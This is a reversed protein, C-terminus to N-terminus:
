RGPAASAPPTATTGAAPPPAAPESAAPRDGWEDRLEVDGLNLARLGSEVTARDGVVVVRAHDPDLYREAVRRVDAATVANVRQTFTEYEDLPLGYVFLEAIASATQEATEFRAPLSETLRAKAAALEADTVDTTRMRRLENFIEQVAPATNAVSIAGGITFPGPGHRFSFGSRAGYTYAHAERLNLNIRSSFMGGLITNMVVLPIYDRSSRPVGAHTVVVQSQPAGPRDVLVVRGSSELRPPAPVPRPRPARARWTAFTRELLPTLVARTVDGVVVVAGDAPVFHTRYFCVVDARTIARVANETGILTRSYPHTAGYVSRASVISGIAAPVDRQQRLAALRRARARELEDEAFRPNQVIDALLTLAPEVNSALVKIFAGGSDWEMWTGHEAGLAALTDSLELANRSTTGQELLVGVLSALGARDVPLDDGGRRSVFQTVVIPLDHREVLLVELGNALRFREIRPPTFPRTPGPAPAQARFPADPTEARVPPPPVVPAVPPAVAPRPPPAAAIQTPQAQRGGCAALLAALALV